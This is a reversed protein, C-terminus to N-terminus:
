WVAALGLSSENTKQCARLLCISLIAYIISLSVLYLPQELFDLSPLFDNIGKDLADKLDAPGIKRVIPYDPATDQGPLVDLNTM